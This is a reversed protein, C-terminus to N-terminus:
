LQREGSLVMLMLRKSILVDAFPVRVCPAVSGGGSERGQKWNAEQFSNYQQKSLFGTTGRPYVSLIFLNPKLFTQFNNSCFWSLLISVGDNSYQTLILKGVCLFILQTSKIIKKM